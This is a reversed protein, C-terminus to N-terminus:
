QRFRRWGWWLLGLVAAVAVALAIGHSYRTMLAVAQPGLLYGAGAEVACVIAAGATTWVGFSIRGMGFTGAPLSILHRIFPLLRGVFTAVAANRLFLREAQDYHHRDILLYKGYRLLFARGLTRGLLYNVSAGFLSGFAGAAVVLGFDLRGERAIYGAPVMVLEAPVPFLSSEMAMLIFIHGYDLSAYFQELWAHFETM